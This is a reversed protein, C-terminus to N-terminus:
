VDTDIGTGCQVPCVDGLTYYNDLPDKPGKGLGGKGGSTGSTDSTDSAKNSGGTLKDFLIYNNCEHSLDSNQKIITYIQKKRENSHESTIFCNKGNVGDPCYYPDNLTINNDGSDTMENWDNGCYCHDGYIGIYHNCPNFGSCQGGQKERNPSGERTTGSTYTCLSLCENIKERNTSAKTSLGPVNVFKSRKSGADVNRGLKFCNKNEGDSECEGLGGDDSWDNMGKVEGNSDRDFDNSGEYKFLLNSSIVDPVNKCKLNYSPFEISCTSSDEDDKCSKRVYTQMENTITEPTEKPLCNRYGRRNDDGSCTLNDNRGEINGMILNFVDEVSELRNYIDKIDESEDGSLLTRIDKSATGQDSDTIGKVGRGVWERDEDRFLVIGFEAVPDGSYGVTKDQPLQTVQTNQCNGCTKVCNSWGEGTTGYDYCSISKGIDSCYHKKNNKDEVYWDKNDVCPTTFGESCNSLLYTIGMVLIILLLVNCYKM